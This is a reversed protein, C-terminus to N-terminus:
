QDIQEYINEVESISSSIEDAMLLKQEEEREKAMKKNAMTSIALIVGFAITFCLFSSKGHSIMPLTQGTLIGINCNILIHLMAQFTILFVLGGICTKAYRNSCAKVILVGRAFLTIYLIIVLLGGLIGYEEMLFSFMYDEFILPVIYKQTSKGPGKGLIRRGGEVFAVEASNNQLNKDRYERFEKSNASYTKENDLKKSAIKARQAERVEKSPYPLEIGLRNAGTQLRSIVTGNSIVHVSVIMFVGAAGIALLGLIEKIKMGGIIITCGMVIGLMLASSTSGPFTLGMTIIMPLYIYVWRQGLPSKMWGFVQPYATGLRDAISFKGKEYTSLAWSLYMVMAIKVVEYVQLTFGFMYIARTAENQNIAHFASGLDIDGVLILLLAASIGFGFQSAWKIYKVNPIAALVVLLAVGALVLIAQGSFIATRSIGTRMAHTSTSSFIAVLSVLMLMIAVIWIMRDGSAINKKVRTFINEQKEVAM